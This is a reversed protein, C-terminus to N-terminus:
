GQESMPRAGFGPGLLGGGSFRRELSALDDGVAEALLDQQTPLPGADRAVDGRFGSDRPFGGTFSSGGNVAQIRQWAAAGGSNQGHAVSSLIDGATGHSMVNASFPGLAGQEGPVGDAKM